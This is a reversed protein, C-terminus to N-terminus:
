DGNCCAQVSAERVPLGSSSLSRSCNRAAAIAETFYGASPLYRPSQFRPLGDRLVAAPQLETVCRARGCAAVAVGTVLDVLGFDRM